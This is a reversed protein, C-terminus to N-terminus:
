IDFEIVRYPYVNIVETGLYHTHCAELAYVHKHGHLLYRPRFRAMMGLFAKFGRHPWDKGDHIGFPPAHAVFIDLFRGTTVRNLLLEPTMRWVRYSM